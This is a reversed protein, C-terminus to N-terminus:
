ASAGVPEIMWERDQALLANALVVLKRMVAVLAVKPPKGRERLERYKRALDPNHTIASVAAMYLMRRPRSRGGGIFSRGKWAGSERTVPALGALSAAAKGDIGGLEPMETLLGAATIRAIGPISTLVEARRSLAEDEAILRGTEADLAKIQREMQALRQKLQRNLLPHRAQHRRNLAATRDRVLGDRGTQLEDLDRRTPTSPQVRRLEMAAGMRALVKADAADTKAEQGLAQAFRRARMANVRSLPLEGALAEELARHWPGTSEYVVWDTAGAWAALKKFGAANNAFREARGSPLAHADLHAKSIDVGVTNLTHDGM